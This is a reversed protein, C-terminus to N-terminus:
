HIIPQTLDAVILFVAFQGKEAAKKRLGVMYDHVQNIEDFHTELRKYLKFIKHAKRILFHGKESHIIRIETVRNETFQDAIHGIEDKLFGAKRLAQHITSHNGHILQFILFVTQQNLM